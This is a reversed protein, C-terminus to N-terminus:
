PMYSASVKLVNGKILKKFQKSDVVICHDLLMATGLSRSSKEASSFLLARFQQLFKTPALKKGSRVSEPSCENWLKARISKLTEAEMWYGSFKKLQGPSSVCFAYKTGDEAIIGSHIARYARAREIRTVANGFAEKYSKRARTGRPLALLRITKGSDADTEDLEHSYVMIRNDVSGEVINLMDSMMSKPSSSYDLMGRIELPQESRAREYALLEDLKYFVARGLSGTSSILDTIKAIMEKEREDLTQAARVEPRQYHGVGFGPNDLLPNAELYKRIAEARKPGIGRVDTLLEAKAAHYAEEATPFHRLLEAKVSAPISPVSLIKDRYARESFIVM